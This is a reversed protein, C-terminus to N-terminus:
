ELRHEKWKVEAVVDVVPLYPNKWEEPLADKENKKFFYIYHLLKIYAIEM